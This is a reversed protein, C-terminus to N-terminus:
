GIWTLMEDMCCGKFRNMSEKWAYFIRSKMNANMGSFFNFFVYIWIYENKKCEDWFSKWCNNM